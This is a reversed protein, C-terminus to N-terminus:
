NTFDNRNPEHNGVAISAYVSNHQDIEYTVGAKPNFFDLSAQQQRNLSRRLYLYLLIATFGVFAWGKVTQLGTIQWREPLLALARDSFLIWLFAAAFYTLSVRAAFRNPQKLM